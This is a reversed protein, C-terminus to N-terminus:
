RDSLISNLEEITEIKDPLIHEYSYNKQIIEGLERSFLKNIVNTTYETTEINIMSENYSRLNYQGNVSYDVGNNYEIILKKLQSNKETELSEYRGLKFLGSEWDLIYTYFYKGFLKPINDSRYYEIPEDSLVYGFNDFKNDAYFYNHEDILYKKIRLIEKQLVPYINNIERFIQKIFEDYLEMNISPDIESFEKSIKNLKEYNKALLHSIFKDFSNEYYPVDYTIEDITLKNDPTITKFAIILKDRFTDDSLYKYNLYPIYVNGWYNTTKPTKIDLLYLLDNKVKESLDMGNLINKPILKFFISTYDGDLKKMTIYTKNTSEIYTKNIIKPFVNLANIISIDIERKNNECKLLYKSYKDSVFIGCNHQGNNAVSVWETLNLIFNGGLQKLQLYKNKYKIYKKEYNIM